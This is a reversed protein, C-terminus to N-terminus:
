ANEQPTPLEVRMLTGGQTNPLAQITGGHAVVIDRTIALGLGTGGRGQRTTVFPEFMRDRLEDPIGPGTDRVELWVTDGESGVRVEVKGGPGTAQLANRLLNHMVLEFQVRNVNALANSTPEVDLRVGARGAELKMQGLEERALEALDLLQREFGSPRALELLNTVIRSVRFAQEELKSALPARPDNGPTLERLLQAYSAIGTVPTNVEHALGAALRGLAALREQEALRQELILQASIDDLAVVRGDFRGPEV